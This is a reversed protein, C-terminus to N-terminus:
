VGRSRHRRQTTPLPQGAVAEADARAMYECPKRAAPAPGTAGPRDPQVAAATAQNTDAVATSASRSGGCGGLSCATL